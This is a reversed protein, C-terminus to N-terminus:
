LRRGITFAGSGVGLSRWEADLVRLEDSASESSRQAGFPGITEYTISEPNRLVRTVAKAEVYTATEAFDLDEVVRADFNSIRARLMGRVVGLLKGALYQESASLDRMMVTEVDSISTM